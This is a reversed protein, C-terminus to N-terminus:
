RSIDESLRWRVKEGENLFAQGAALLLSGDEIGSIYAINGDTRVLQVPVSKVQESADLIKAVLQGDETVSLHAPSIRVAKIADVKISVEGSMGARLRGDKNDLTIEVRFTRSAQNARAAIRSVQGQYRGVGAFSVEVADGQSVEGIRAQPVPVDLQLRKLGLILVAPKDTSAMEGPELFIEELWGARPSRLITFELQEELRAIQADVSKIRAYSSTLEKDRSLNQLEFLSTEAAKLQARLNSLDLEPRLKRAVLQEVARYNDRIAALNAEAADLQAALTGTKSFRKKAEEYASMAAQRDAKAAALDSDLTGRDLRILVDGKNIWSGERAPIESVIAARRATLNLDFETRTQGSARIEVSTLEAKARQAEIVLSSPTVAPEPDPSAVSTKALQDAPRDLIDDSFMWGVVGLAILVAWLLSLRVKM